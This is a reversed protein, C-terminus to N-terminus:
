VCTFTSNRGSGRSMKLNRNPLKLSGAHCTAFPRPASARRRPTATLGPIPLFTRIRAWRQQTAKCLQAYWCSFQGRRLLAM